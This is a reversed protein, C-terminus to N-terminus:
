RYCSWRPKQPLQGIVQLSDTSLTLSVANDVILTQDHAGPQDAAADLSPM